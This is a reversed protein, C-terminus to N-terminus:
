QAVGKVQRMVNAILGADEGQYEPKLQSTFAFADIKVPRTFFELTAWKYGSEIHHKDEKVQLMARGIDKWDYDKLTKKLKAKVAANVVRCQKGFTKNYFALMRECENDFDKIREKYIATKDDICVDSKTPIDKNIVNDNVSVSVSVSDAISAISKTAISDTKDTHSSIRGKAINAAEDLTLQKAEVKEYLDFHWRKLNGLIAGQSKRNIETEWKKLDRKMVQKIPEFAVEVLLDETEPNLDNVYALIHKLLKGATEDPLKNVTHILDCYLIFSKKDTAMKM